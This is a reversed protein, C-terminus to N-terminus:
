FRGVAKQALAKLKDEDGATEKIALKVTTNGKKIYLDVYDLGHMDRDMFADDALGKITVPKKSAKRGRDIGDAPFVWVEMADKGNAFEDNCWAAAGEKDAKPTGNMKGIVHEVEANTLISCPPAAMATAATLPIAIWPILYLVARRTCMSIMATM